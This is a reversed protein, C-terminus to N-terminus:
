TSLLYAAIPAALWALGKLLFFAFAAIAAWTGWSGGPWRSLRRQAPFPRPSPSEPTPM